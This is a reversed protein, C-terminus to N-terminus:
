NSKAILNVLIALKVSEKAAKFKAFLWDMM